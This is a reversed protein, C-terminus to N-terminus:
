CALQREISRRALARLCANFVHGVSLDQLCALGRHCDEPRELFCPSCVMSKRVAVAKLGLPGWEKADVVGSHIGITPIGLAAALHQPGSNNGVFLASRALLKPLEALSFRGVLDFVRDRKRIPGLTQEAVDREDKGGIVALNYEDLDALMDILRSFKEPPWQRMPSGAAPHVSILPRSFLRRQESVPLQLPAKPAEIGAARDSTSHTAVAEVLGILDDAIHGHKTRLPVDEDWELAVDLWPFRGQHDFGVLIRAGTMQLVERTDPQKRLDIALDFRLARLAKEIKLRDPENVDLKGLASRAHFFGFTLTEDVVPAANWVSASAPGALVCIHAQPFHHRLRRVAPLANICDGIHDLKVVLIRQISDKSFLPHGAYVTELPEAEAMFQDHDCSLNPNFYPDGLTVVDRWQENFKQSDYKEEVRVRSALEHHILRAHPTYVNLLGKRWARLCYDLDNNIVAHSEDFCGLDKFTQHRTMLCAGTVSIVNRQAHALGFYGPDSELLHRFAHRGRGEQDLFVGAHQVSRDPYLLLPGVAGVEPRQANELLAELWDPDIIETDDNLFLLFEGAARAAADNNFKSWNFTERTSIVSDAHSSLWAKSQKQGDPINEICIIEYDRYTTRDRLSTLCDKVLGNAACTPVIISVRGSTVKRKIRHQQGVSERLVDGDIKRRKLAEVLARHEQAPHDADVTSREYLVKPVHGIKQTAETLRLAVDYEGVQVSKGLDISARGLLDLDACWSRGIYNTSLLLDPSWDPKFFAGVKGDAPNVRREDSYWLSTEPSFGSALSLELLADCGLQDGPAPHLLFCRAARPKSKRKPVDLVTQGTGELLHVKKAIDDYGDLLGRLSAERNRKVGVKPALVFLEWDPYTQRRLSELTLRAAEISGGGHPLPMAIRFTPRWGLRQLTDTKTDVEAQSMKVRLAWPGGVDPTEQVVVRFGTSAVNGARDVMSVTVDHPGLTLAKPPLHVAYGSLLSGERSPHAAAVDPRRLGHRATAVRKGDLAVDVKEVGTDAIAWGIVSLGGRIPSEVAGGVVRPIDLSLLNGSKAARRSASRNRGGAPSISLGRAVGVTLYHYLPNVPEEGLEECQSLYHATDFAACPNLKERGGREIYHTLPDINLKAIAPYARVYFEADFLGSTSLLEYEGFLVTV